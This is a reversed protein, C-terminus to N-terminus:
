EQRLRSKYYWYIIASVAEQYEETVAHDDLGLDPVDIDKM